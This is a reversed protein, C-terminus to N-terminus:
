SGNVVQKRAKEGKKVAEPYVRQQGLLELRAVLPPVLPEVKLFFPFFSSEAQSGCTQIQLLGAIRLGQVQFFAMIWCKFFTIQATGKM